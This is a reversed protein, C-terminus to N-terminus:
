KVSKNFIFFLIRVCLNHVTEKLKNKLKNKIEISKKKELM